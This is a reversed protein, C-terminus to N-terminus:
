NEKPVMGLYEYFRRKMYPRLDEMLNAPFDAYMIQIEDLTYKDMFIMVEELTGSIIPTEYFLSM